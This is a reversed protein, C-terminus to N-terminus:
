EESIPQVLNEERISFSVQKGNYKELIEFFNYPVEDDKTIETITAIGSEFDIELIGKGTTQNVSKM